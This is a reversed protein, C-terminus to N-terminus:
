RQLWATMAPYRESIQVSHGQKCMGAHALGNIGAYQRCSLMSRIEAGAGGYEPDRIIEHPALGCALGAAWAWATAEPDSCQIAARQLPHDPHLDMIALEEFMRKIGVALNDNMLVRFRAPVTALHGAEHLLTSPLCSPDVHLTGDVIRVGPAFGNAGAEVHVALGIARLHDIVRQLMADM